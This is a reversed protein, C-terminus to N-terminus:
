VSYEAGRALFREAGATNRILGDDRELLGVAVCTDFLGRAPRDKLGLASAAEAERRGGQSLVDFVGLEVAAMVTRAIWFSLFIELVPDPDDAPVGVAATPVDPSRGAPVM